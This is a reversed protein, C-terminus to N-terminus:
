ENDELHSHNKALCKNMHRYVTLDIQDQIEEKSMIKKDIEHLLKEIQSTKRVIPVMFCIAVFEGFAIIVAIDNM